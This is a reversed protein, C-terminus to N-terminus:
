RAGCRGLPRCPPPRSCVTAPTVSSKRSHACRARNRRDLCAQSSTPSFISLRTSFVRSGCLLSRTSAMGNSGHVLCSPAPSAQVWTTSAATFSSPSGGARGEESKALWNKPLDFCVQEVAASANEVDITVQEPQGDNGLILAHEAATKADWADKKPATETVDANAGNALGAALRPAASAVTRTTSLILSPSRARIPAGMVAVWADDGHRLWDDYLLRAFGHYGWGPGWSNQVIFGDADYGVLAFAHGGDPKTSSTWPITPIPKKSVAMDWGGHVDGSVYIAGVEFVRPRCTPSPDPTSATIRASRVPRPM